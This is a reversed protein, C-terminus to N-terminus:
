GREVGCEPCTTSLVGELSYGCDSCVGSHAARQLYWVWAILVVSPVLVLSSHVLGYRYKVTAWWGAPPDFYSDEDEFALLSNSFVMSRFRNLKASWSKELDIGYRSEPLWREHNIAVTPFGKSYVDRDRHRKPGYYEADSIGTTFLIFQGQDVSLTFRYEGDGLPVKLSLRTHAYWSTIVLFLVLLVLGTFVYKFVRLRLLRGVGWGANQAHPARFVM